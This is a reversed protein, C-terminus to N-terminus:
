KPTVGMGIPNLRSVLTIAWQAPCPRAEWKIVQVIRNSSQLQVKYNVTGSTTDCHSGNCVGLNVRPGMTM